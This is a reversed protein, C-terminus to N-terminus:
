VEKNLRSVGYVSLGGSRIEYPDTWTNVLQKTPISKGLAETSGNLGDHAVKRKRETM